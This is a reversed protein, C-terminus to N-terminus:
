LIDEVKEMNWIEKRTESIEKRTKEHIDSKKPVM